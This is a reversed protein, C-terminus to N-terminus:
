AEAKKEAEGPADAAPNTGEAADDPESATQAEATLDGDPPNMALQFAALAVELMEAEPERTTLYQLALGPARVARALWGDSAAAAKLVEYSIGAVLPLFILRTLLRVLLNESYPRLAFFLISIAMVLFLYNTGCRPHLRTYRMASEPTM